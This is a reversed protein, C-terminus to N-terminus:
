NRDFGPPHRTPEDPGDPEHLWAWKTVRVEQGRHDVWTPGNLFRELRFRVILVMGYGEDDNGIDPCWGWVPGNHPPMLTQVDFWEMNM